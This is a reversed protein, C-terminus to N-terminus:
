AGGTVLKIEYAEGQVWGYPIHVTARGLRALKPSPDVTAPWIADNVIVQAITLEQPGVNRVQLDFGERTVVSREVDLKHIPAPPQVDPGVGTSLFVAIVGGLLLLPALLMAMTALPSRRAAPAPRPQPVAATEAM